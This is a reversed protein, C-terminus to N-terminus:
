SEYYVTFGVTGLLLVLGIYTIMSMPSPVSLTCVAVILDAIAGIIFGNDIFLLWALMAIAGLAVLVHRLPSSFSRDPLTEMVRQSFGNDPIDTKHALFLRALGDDYKKNPKM